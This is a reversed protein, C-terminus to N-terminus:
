IEIQSVIDDLSINKRMPKEIPHVLEVDKYDNEFYVLTREVFDEDDVNKSDLKWWRFIGYTSFFRYKRNHQLEILDVLHPVDLASFKVAYKFVEGIWSRDFYWDEVTIERMSVQYSDGTIDLWEKQLEKNWNCQWKKLYEIPLECESCALLHIHPHRWNTDSYTVEISSVMGDFNNFFSKKKQTTRKWNRYRKGLKTKAECLKDMVERLSQDKNHRVTLTIHYWHKTYLQYQQIWQEFRKIMRISRRTSCALCFKDYKCFNARHLKQKGSLYDRFILENCCDKIMTSKFVWGLLEPKYQQIYEVIQKKKKQGEKMKSVTRCVLDLHEM